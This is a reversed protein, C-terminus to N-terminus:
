KVSPIFDTNTSYISPFRTSACSCLLLKNPLLTGPTFQQGELRQLLLVHARCENLVNSVSPREVMADISDINYQCCMLAHMKFLFLFLGDDEMDLSAPTDEDTIKNGEYLFRLM